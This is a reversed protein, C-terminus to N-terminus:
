QKIPTRHPLWVLIMLKDDRNSVKELYNFLTGKIIENEDMFSLWLPKTDELKSNFSSKKLIIDENNISIAFPQVNKRLKFDTKIKAQEYVETWERDALYMDVSGTLRNNTTFSYDLSYDQGFPIQIDIYATSDFDTIISLIRQKEEETMMESSINVVKNNQYVVTNSRNLEGIGNKVYESNRLTLTDMYGRAVESLEYLKDYYAEWKTILTDIEPNNIEVKPVENPESHNCSFLILIFFIILSFIRCNMM